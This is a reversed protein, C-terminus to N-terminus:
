HQGVGARKLEPGLQGTLGLGFMRLDSVFSYAWAKPGRFSMPVNDQILFHASWACLYGALLGGAFIWWNGTGTAVTFGAIGIATGAYHLKRTLAASHARLYDLWFDDFTKRGAM